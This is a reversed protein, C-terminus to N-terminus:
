FVYGFFCHLVLYKLSHQNKDLLHVHILRMHVQELTFLQSHINGSVSVGLSMALDGTNTSRIPTEGYAGNLVRMDPM